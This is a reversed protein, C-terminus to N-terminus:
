SAMVRPRTALSEPSTVQQVCFSSDNTTKCRLKGDDFCDCLLWLCYRSRAFLWHRHPPAWGEKRSSVAQGPKTKTSKDNTPRQYNETQGDSDSNVNTSRQNIRQKNITPSESDTSWQSIQQQNITPQNKTQQDNTIRRRNIMPQYPTQQDNTPEDNTSQQHNATQRDSASKASTSRQSDKTRRQNNTTEQYQNIITQRHVTSEDSSSRQNTRRKDIMPPNTTQQDNASEDKTSRQNIRRKNGGAMHDQYKSYNKNNSRDM